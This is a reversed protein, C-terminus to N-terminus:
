LIGEPLGQVRFALGSAPSIYINMQGDEAGEAGRRHADKLRLVTVSIIGDLM